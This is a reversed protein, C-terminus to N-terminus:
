NFCSATHRLAAIRTDFAGPERYSGFWGDDDNKGEPKYLYSFKAMAQKFSDLNEDSYGTVREMAVCAFGFECTGETEFLEKDAQLLVAAQLLIEKPTM